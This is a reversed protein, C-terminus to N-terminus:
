EGLVLRVSPNSQTAEINMSNGASDKLVASVVDIDARINLGFSGAKKLRAQSVTRGQKDLISVQYPGTGGRVEVVLKWTGVVPPSPKQEDSLRAEGGRAFPEIGVKPPNKAMQQRQIEMRELQEDTLDFLKVLPSGAGADDTWKPTPLDRIPRGSYRSNVPILGQEPWGVEDLKAVIAGSLAKHGAATPHMKDWLLDQIAAGNAIEAKFAATMDVVPIGFHLSLADMADFYPLWGPPPGIPDPQLLYTNTPKIFMASVGRRSAELLIEEHLDMWRSLPVRRVKGKPWGEAANWVVVKGEDAGSFESLWAAFLKVTALHTLPNAAAFRSSRLLDEDQFSDWTNDSWVNALILLDPQLDWGFEELLLKHQAVTYGGIGTNLVEVNLGSSTLSGGLQHSFVDSDGVGFGYFSSDGTSLIRLLGEPKPVAPMAGRFGLANVNATSGQANPVDRAEALGWLRTPHADMLGRTGNPGNWAPLQPQRTRAWWELVTLLALPVLALILLRVGM